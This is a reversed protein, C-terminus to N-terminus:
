AASEQSAAIFADLARTAAGSDISHSALVVGERIDKARDAATLAVAANILVYERHPGKEGALVSRMKTANEQISGTRVSELPVRGFGADEPTLRYTKVDNGKIERVDTAGGLTVEDLGDEGHVILVRGTGLRALVQAVKDVLSADGVGTLQYKAGAPNTLPGLSNFITRIGIERRAPGVFRMAPHFAAAFMFGFGSKEICNSVQEPTQELKAGLAELVDAAGAASTFGRNGHKAVKVGAGACVLAATTSINFPDFVAGGTSVVDLVDGDTQVRLAKERMVRVMGTIEDVTEGKLRLATLFAGVQATTAEGTMMEEMAAAAETETLDQGAVVAAIADRIV